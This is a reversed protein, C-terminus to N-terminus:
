VWINIKCKAKTKKKQHNLPVQIFDMMYLFCLTIKQTCNKDLFMKIKM